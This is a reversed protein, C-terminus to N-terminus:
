VELQSNVWNFLIEMGKKLPYNPKWNLVNAILQNDSCRGNVGVPGDINDITLNKGSISIVMKALGNITIMEDSGINLPKKFNSQMLRNVGELCEDIFLFSRTQKGSGWIEIQGGDKAQAIKRCIAAPAKEKGGDFCSQPGFINHFRAIRIDLGFNRSYSQYLRESFLKEWGYESDPNAPFALDEACNPNHADFQNEEPYICASSSYFLKTKSYKLADAVNLNIQASNHMIGADNEGTFIYGAGGMDAALQYVEDFNGKGLFKSVFATDRLDQEVFEDALSDSFEPHVRDVGTVHHGDLKLKKVLHSGIFGGAGLVAIKM